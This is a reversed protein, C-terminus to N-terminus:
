CRSSEALCTLRLQLALLAALLVYNARKCSVPPQKRCVGILSIVNNHQGLKMMLEMEEFFEQTENDDATVNAKLQKIAVSQAGESENLPNRLMGAFVLGFEGSGLQKAVICCSCDLYLTGVMRMCAMLREKLRIMQSNFLCFDDTESTVRDRAIEWDDGGVEQILRQIGSDLQNKRRHVLFLLLLLSLVLAGALAGGLV